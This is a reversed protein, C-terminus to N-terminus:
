LLAKAAQHDNRCHSINMGLEVYSNALEHHDDGYFSRKVAVVREMSSLADEVYGLNKQAITMNQLCGLVNISNEGFFQREIRYAKEFYELATRYNRLYGHASGLNQYERAAEIHEEGYKSTAHQVVQEMIELLKDYQGM